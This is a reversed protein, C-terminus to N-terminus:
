KSKTEAYDITWYYSNNNRYSGIGVYRFKPNMLIQCQSKSHIIANIAKKFNSYIDENKDLIDIKVINEGSLTGQHARFGYYVLRETFLSGIGLRKKAEDTETGSGDHRVFHNLAMDKAHMKAAYSLSQDLTLKLAAQSCNNEKSRIDNLISLLKENKIRDTQIITKKRDKHAINLNNSACSSFILQGIIFYAIAYIFNLM